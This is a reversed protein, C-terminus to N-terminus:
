CHFGSVFCLTTIAKLALSQRLAHATCNQVLAEVNSLSDSSIHFSASTDHNLTDSM